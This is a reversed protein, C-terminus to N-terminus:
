QKDKKLSDKVKAMWEAAIEGVRTQPVGFQTLEIEYNHIFEQTNPLSKQTM